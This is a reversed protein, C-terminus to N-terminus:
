PQKANVPTSATQSSISCYTLYSYGSWIAPSSGLTYKLTKYAAQPNIKNMSELSPCRSALNIHFATSKKETDPELPNRPPYSVHPADPLLASVPVLVVDPPLQPLMQQLVHITSPHPHGIAIASGNKQAMKVALNFQKRVAAENQDDDLFVKRKVVQVSTGAAAQTSKSSGITMSDLFYLQYHSLTKMVLQMAALDSTMASGMHNNMGKAHPVNHIAQAIIRRIEEQGMTPQLTDRELPQKSLPAMPMHILIEHGQQYAKLAMERSLPANPLVAVSIAAPMQLVQEENHKRYGFDDIVIALRAPAATVSASFCTLGCLIISLRKLYTVVIKWAM